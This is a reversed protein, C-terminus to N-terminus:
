AASALDRLADYRSFLEALPADSDLPKGLFPDAAGLEFQMRGCTRILAARTDDYLAPVDLDILEEVPGTPKAVEHDLGDTIPSQFEKMMESMRQVEQPEIDLTRLYDLVSRDFRDAVIGEM